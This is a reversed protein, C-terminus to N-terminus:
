CPIDPTTHRIVNNEREQRVQEEAARDEDTLELIGQSFRFVTVTGHCGSVTRPAFNRRPKATSLRATFIM